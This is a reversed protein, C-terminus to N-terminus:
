SSIVSVWSTVLKQKSVIVVFYFIQWTLLRLAAKQILLTQPLIQFVQAKCSLIWISYGAVDMKLCGGSVCRRHWLVDFTLARIQLVLTKSRWIVWWLWQLIWRTWILFKVHCMQLYLNEVLSYWTQQKKILTKKLVLICKSLKFNLKPLPPPFLLCTKLQNKM